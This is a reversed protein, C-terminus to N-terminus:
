EDPFRWVTKEILRHHESTQKQLREITKELIEKQEEKIGQMILGVQRVTTNEYALYKSFIININVGERSVFLKKDEIMATSYGLSSLRQSLDIINYAVGTTDTDLVDGFKDKFLPSRLELIDGKDTLNFNYITTPYRFEM